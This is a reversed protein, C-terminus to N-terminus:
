RGALWAALVRAEKDAALGARPAQQREAPLSRFWALTDVVTEALPRFSLGAAVARQNSVEGLISRPGFWATMEAWPRVEHETLTEMPVWHFRVDLDGSLAGRVGHLMEAMTLRSRPGAANYAGGANSEALRVTWEGLDRGDIVQTADLGDGPALVDGGRAIRLPWYTFRDTQDRPGVILGPRIITTREGYWRIAERESAAKMHGFTEMRFTEARVELPDGEAYELLPTDETVASAGELDYVSVSSTLVYRDTKDQLVEGVDRVWFPLTSPNDLVVDWRRGRLADLEGLHRDGTLQEVGEPLPAESRGRNFVTVEHGRAVAYAVQAPGTFGTGGLILIKLSRSATRPTTVAALASALAPAGPSLGIAAAAASASLFDRRKM